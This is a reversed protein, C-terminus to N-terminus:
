PAAASQARAAGYVPEAVGEITAIGYEQTEQYNTLVAIAYPADGPTLPSIYGVSNVRWGDDDPYWGDKIGVIENTADDAGAAIGWRQGEVVSALMTLAAARHLANVTDGYTVRAMLAAMGAATATSTGWYPGDYPVIGEAGAKALCETM